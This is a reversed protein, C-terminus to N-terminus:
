VTAEQAQTNNSAVAQPGFSASRGLGPALEGARRATEAGPGRGTRGGRSTGGGDAVLAPDSRAVSLSWIGLPVLPTAASSADGLAEDPACQVIARELLACAGGGEVEWSSAVVACVTSSPPQHSDAIAAVRPV